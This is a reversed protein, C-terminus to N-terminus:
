KIRGVPRARDRRARRAIPTPKESCHLGAGWQETDVGEAGFPL